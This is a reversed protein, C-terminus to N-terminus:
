KMYRFVHVTGTESNSVWLHDTGDIAIAGPCTMGHEPGLFARFCDGQKDMLFVRGKDSDSVFTNGYVDCCISTPKVVEAESTECRFQGIVQLSPSVVVIEYYSNGRFNAILLDGNAHESIGKPLKLIEKANESNPIEKEKSMDGNFKVLKAKLDLNLLNTGFTFTVYLGNSSSCIHRPKQPFTDERVIGTYTKDVQWIVNSQHGTISLNGERSVSIDEVKGPLAIRRKEVGDKSCLFITKGNNYCVWALTSSIPAISTVKNEGSISKFSSVAKVEFMPVYLVRRPIQVSLTSKSQSTVTGITKYGLNPIERPSFSYEECPFEVRERVLSLLRSMISRSNGLVETDSDKQVIENTKQIIDTVSKQKEKMKLAFRQLKGRRLKRESDLHKGLALLDEDIANKMKEAHDHASHKLSTIEQSMRAYEVHANALTEEVSGLFEQANKCVETMKLRERRSAVSIYEVDHDVHLEEKCKVCLNQKCPMCYIYVRHTHHIECPSDSEPTEYTAARRRTSPQPVYFNKQFGSIGNSPIQIEVRCLPCPFSGRKSWKRLIPELCPTCFTHFCSLFRPDKFDAMCISCEFTSSQESMTM